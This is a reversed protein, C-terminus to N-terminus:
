IRPILRRLDEYIVNKQWWVRDVVPSIIEEFKSSVTISGSSAGEAKSSATTCVAAGGNKASNRLLRLTDADFRGDLSRFEHAPRLNESSYVRLIVLRYNSPPNLGESNNAAPVSKRDSVYIMM